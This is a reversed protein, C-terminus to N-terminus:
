KLNLKCEVGGCFNRQWQGVRQLGCDVAPDLLVDSWIMDCKGVLRLM